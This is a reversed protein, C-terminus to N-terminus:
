LGAAISRQVSVYTDNLYHAEHRNRDLSLVTFEGTFQSPFFDYVNFEGDDIAKCHYYSAAGDDGDAKVFMTIFTTSYQSTNWTIITDISTATNLKPQTVNITDIEQIKITPLAPFVDGTIDLSM